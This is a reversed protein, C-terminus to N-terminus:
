VKDQINRGICTDHLLFFNITHQKHCLGFWLFRFLLDCMNVYLFTLFRNLHTQKTFVFRFPFIWTYHSLARFGFMRFSNVIQSSNSTNAVIAVDPLKKYTQSSKKKEEIKEKMKNRTHTSIPTRWGDIQQCKSMWQKNTQM